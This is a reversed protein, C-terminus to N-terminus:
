CVTTAGILAMAMNHHYPERANCPLSFLTSHAMGMGEQASGFDRFAFNKYITQM